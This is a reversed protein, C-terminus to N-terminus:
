MWRGGSLRHVAETDDPGCKAPIFGDLEHVAGVFWKGGLRVRVEDPAKFKFKDSGNVRTVVEVGDRRLLFRRTPTIALRFGKVERLVREATWADTGKVDSWDAQTAM